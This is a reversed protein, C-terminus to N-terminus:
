LLKSRETFFGLLGSSAAKRSGCSMMASIAASSASLASIRSPIRPNNHPLSPFNFSEAVYQFKLVTLWEGFLIAVVISRIGGKSCVPNLTSTFM